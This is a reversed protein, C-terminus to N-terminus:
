NKRICLGQKQLEELLIDICNERCFEIFVDWFRHEKTEDTIWGGHSGINAHHLQKEGTWFNNYNMADRDMFVQGYAQKLMKTTASRWFQYTRHYYEPEFVDYFEEDIIQQLHGLIRNCANEVAKNCASNILIKMDSINKVAKM